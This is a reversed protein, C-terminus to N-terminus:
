ESAAIRFLRQWRERHVGPRKNMKLKRLCYWLFPRSVGLVTASRTVNGGYVKLTREIEERCMEPDQALLDGLWTAAIRRAQKAGM